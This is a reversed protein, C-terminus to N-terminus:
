SDGGSCLTPISNGNHTGRCVILDALGVTQLLLQQTKLEGNELIISVQTGM